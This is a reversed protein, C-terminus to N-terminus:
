ITKSSRSFVGTSLSHYRRAATSYPQLRFIKTRWILLAQVLPFPLRQGVELASEGGPESRASCIRFSGYLKSKRVTALSACSRSISRPKSIWRRSRSSSSPRPKEKTPLWTGSGIAILGEINVQEEIVEPKMSKDDDFQSPFNLGSHAPLQVEVERRHVIQYAGRRVGWWRVAARRFGCCALRRIREARYLWAM